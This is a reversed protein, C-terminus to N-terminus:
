AESYLGLYQERLLRPSIEAGLTCHLQNSVEASTSLVSNNEDTLDRAKPADEKDLLMDDGPGRFTVDKIDETGTGPSTELKEMQASVPVSQHPFVQLYQEDLSAGLPENPAWREPLDETSTQGEAGTESLCVVDEPTNESAPNSSIVLLDHLEKLATTVSSYSEETMEVSTQCSGCLSLSPSCNGLEKNTGSMKVNSEPHQLDQTSISNTLIEPSLNYKSTEVEMLPNDLTPASAGISNVSAKQSDSHLVAVLSQEVVDIDMVIESSSCGSYETHLVSKEAGPFGVNQQLSDAKMEAELDVCKQQNPQREGSPELDRTDCLEQGCSANQQVVERQTAGPEEHPELGNVRSVNQSEPHWGRESLFKQPDRIKTTKVTLSTEQRTYLHFELSQTSREAPSKKLTDAVVAGEPSNQLAPSQLAPASGASSAHDSLDQLPLLHEREESAIQFEASAMLAKHANSDLSDPDSPKIPCVSASVSRAPSPHNGIEPSQGSPHALHSFGDSASLSSM